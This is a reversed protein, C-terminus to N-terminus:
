RTGICDSFPGPRQPYMDPFLLNTFPSPADLRLITLYARPHSKVTSLASDNHFTQILPPKFYRPRNFVWLFRRNQPRQIKSPKAFLSFRVASPLKSLATLTHVTCAM